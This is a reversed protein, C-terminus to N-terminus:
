LSHESFPPLELPDQALPYSGLQSNRFVYSLTNEDNAKTDTADECEVLGGIGDVDIIGVKLIRSKGRSVGFSRGNSISNM